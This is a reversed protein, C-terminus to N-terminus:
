KAGLFRPMTKLSDYFNTSRFVYILGFTSGSLISLLYFDAFMIIKMNAYCTLNKCFIQFTFFYKKVFM